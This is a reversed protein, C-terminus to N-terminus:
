TLESVPCSDGRAEDDGWPRTTQSAKIGKVDQQITMEISDPKLAYVMRVNQLLRDDGAPQTQLLFHSLIQEWEDATGKFKRKLKPINRHSVIILTDFVFPFSM